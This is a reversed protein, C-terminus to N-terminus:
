PTLYWHRQLASMGAHKPMLAGWIRRANFTRRRQIRQWRKMHFNRWARQIQMTARLRAVAEGWDTLHHRAPDTDAPLLQAVCGPAPMSMHTCAVKVHRRVSEGFLDLLKQVIHAHTVPHLLTAGYVQSWMFATMSVARLPASRCSRQWVLEAVCTFMHDDDSGEITVVGCEESLVVLTCEVSLTDTAGVRCSANTTLIARVDMGCQM